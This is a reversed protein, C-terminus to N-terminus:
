PSHIKNAGAKMEGIKEHYTKLLNKAESITLEQEFKSDNNFSRNTNNSFFTISHPKRMENEENSLELMSELNFLDEYATHLLSLLELRFQGNKEVKEPISELYEEYEPFRYDDNAIDAQTLRGTAKNLENLFNESLMLLTETEREVRNSTESIAQIIKNYILKLHNIDQLTLM